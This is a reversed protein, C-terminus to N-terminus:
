FYELPKNRMKNDEGGKKKMLKNTLCAFKIRKILYWVFNTFDLPILFEASLQRDIKQKPRKRSIKSTFQGFALIEEDNTIKELYNLWSCRAWRLGDKLWIRYSLRGRISDFKRSYRTFRIDYSLKNLPQILISLLSTEIVSGTNEYINFAFRLM